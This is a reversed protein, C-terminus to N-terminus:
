GKFPLIWDKPLFDDKIEALNVTPDIFRQSVRGNLAVHADVTIIPNEIGYKRRYEYRLYHAFQLIFDPQISMQKEQFKTLYRSNIIETERGTAPDHVKFVAYGSKEVLMVRWSFRYGEESWMVKSPYLFHRLPTGIQFIIWAALGVKIM